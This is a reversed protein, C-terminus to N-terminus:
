MVKSLFRNFEYRTAAIGKTLLAMRDFLQDDVLGILEDIRDPMEEATREVKRERAMIDRVLVDTQERLAVFKNQYYNAQANIEKGTNYMRVEDLRETLIGIEETYFVLDRLWDSAQNHLISLTTKM